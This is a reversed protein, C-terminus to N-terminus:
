VGMKNSAWYTGDFVLLGTQGATLTISVASSSGWINIGNGNITVTGSAMRKVYVIRGAYRKSTPLYITTAATNYCAIYDENAGVYFTATTVKVLNKFQGFSKLGYFAGGFAPAPNSSTNEANGFVGALFNDDYTLDKDVNGFGLGVVSAKAIIGTSPQLAYQNGSNSLIGDGDIFSIRGSTDNIQIKGGNIEIEGSNVKVKGGNVIVQGTASDLILKPTTGGAISELTETKINWGGIIGLLAIITGNDLVRFPATARNAWDSGAAFRIDDAATGLGTIFANAGNQNGVALVGTAVRNGEITTNAIFDVKDIFPQVQDLIATNLLADQADAYAKSALYANDAKLQADNIARQEEADVIGDAYASATVRALEAQADAYNQAATQANAITAQVDEPAPTWDTAKNGQELKLWEFTWADTNSTNGVLFVGIYPTSVGSPVNFTKSYATDSIKDLTCSYISGNDFWLGFRKSSSVTGHISITLEENQVFQRSATFYGINYSSGSISQKSNVILNRGGVQIANIAQTQALLAPSDATFTVKANIDITDQLFDIYSTGNPSAIRGTSIEGPAIQTFGYTTKIRRFGDQISSLYGAEFHYFAADEDVKIQATSALISANTGVKDAKVYIYHFASPINLQTNAAMNWERPADDLTLHVMKGATNSLATNNSTIALAVDVLNFQQMRSGVTLMKTEISLPKINEPNFYGEGDFVNDQIEKAFTYSRRAMDANYRQAQIIAAQKQQNEIYNLVIKSLVAREALEFQVDYPDQLNKVLAIVRLNKDLNFDADIFRVTHGLTPNIGLAKFYFRDGTVTYKHRQVSNEDLYDQALLTLKEEAATIYSQPMAIDTIVYTDGIAPKLLASPVELAKEDKNPLLEITKNAHNYGHKKIEFSYGALQGTNFTVKAPVDNILITTNGNVDTENLDFDIGTDTFELVNNANVATVTGIREPRVDDFIETHEIIGYQSLNNELYLETMQLRKSYNRYNSPINSESGRAYLRTVVNSNDFPTRTINILGKNQGYELTYGSIAARQTLHIRKDGDVWYEIDFAEAIKALASLCNDGNFSIQKGVTADVTGLTWGTYIRGMNQLLLNLMLSATGTISFESLTLENNSDPFFFQVKALEYKVSTFNLTYKFAHTSTKEVTPTTLMTYTNGYVEVTDNISFEIFEPLNFSMAVLEEAMIKRTITGEAQVSAIIATNRKINYIM